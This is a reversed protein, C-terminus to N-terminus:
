VARGEAIAGAGRHDLRDCRRRFNGDSPTSLFASHRMIRPEGPL